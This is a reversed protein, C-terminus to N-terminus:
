AMKTQDIPVEALLLVERSSERDFTDVLSVTYSEIRTDALLEHAVPFFAWGAVVARAAIQSPAALADHGAIGLPEACTADLAVELHSPPGDGRRHEILLRITKLSNPADSRNTVVLRFAFVRRAPGTLRRIDGRDVYLELSPTTRDRAQLALLYSRKAITTARLANLLSAAAIVVAALAIWMTATLQPWGM